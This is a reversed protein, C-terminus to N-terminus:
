QKREPVQAIKRNPLRVWTGPPRSYVDLNNKAPYPNAATAGVTQDEGPVRIPPLGQRLQQANFQKAYIQAQSLPMTIRHNKPGVEVSNGTVVPANPNPIKQGPNNSDNMMPEVNLTAAIDNASGKGYIGDIHNNLQNIDIVPESAINVAPPNKQLDAQAKALQARKIAAAVAYQGTGSAKAADDAAKAQAAAVREQAGQKQLRMALMEKQLDMEQTGGTHILGGVTGASSGKDGFATGGASYDSPNLSFDGGSPASPTQAAPTTPANGVTPAATSSQLQAAVMARKLEDDSAGQDQQLPQVDGTAPNTFTPDIPATGLDQTTTAGGSSDGGSGDPPLKGLDQTVGAGPQDGISEQTMLKNALADKQAGKIAGALGGLLKGVEQGAQMGRNVADPDYRRIQVRNLYRVAM